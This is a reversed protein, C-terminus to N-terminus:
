IPLLLQKIDTLAQVDMVPCGAVSFNPIKIPDLCKSNRFIRQEEDFAFEDRLQLRWKIFSAIRLCLRADDMKPRHPVYDFLRYKSLLHIIVEHLDLWGEVSRVDQNPKQVIM